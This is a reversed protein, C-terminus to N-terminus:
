VVINLIRGPVYITKKPTKGAVHTQVSRDALAQALVEDESLGPTVEIEARVKGNVQVALMVTARALKAADYLPWAERALLETHGLSEWLEEALHPAFPYLLKLFGEFYGKGVAPDKELVNMFIMLESVATNFRMTEIDDSVKKVTRHFDGERAANADGNVKSRLKWARELFRRPGIIGETNWVVAQDFPGMFMEYLRLTDAGYTAVIEDPGVVNGKSKSMKEGGEALILGHSTRKAYPEPTPVAGIDYLFKHWFRSYLLHLTTHEMGGNYWDVPTWHKLKKKDAFAKDNKPDIYRLFYWSSGAWQPMTDTERRAPGGCKPCKTNVWSEVKALPSEGTDTPTYAGVEPLTLPLEAEPVPVWGDKECHVLPIPEGWYRQRSFVWDRLKYKKVMTGGVAETIKKKAEKSPLGSFKGSATLIGEGTYCKGRVFKDFIYHHLPDVIEREAVEPTVWEITFNGKESEDHSTEDKAEDILDFYLGIAEIVRAKKKAHAYYHHHVTESVGALKVNRYGTEEKIERLAAAEPTEGDELGGGILLRGGLNSGWDLTLIEGKKNRVLAVISKRKEEGERPAGTVPEIVTQIPLGYKGAFEFDREDHAPVAMIAGTGYEALVYDAVYMPIEEGNAPNIAVVGKLKVGTKEKGEATREIETKKKAAEAYRRVEEKNALADHHEDIALKVWLHDPSLVLYTAGFLTDPRTTFVSIAAREGNPGRNDNAKPDHIFKLPFSLEAGESRGIWNRQQIKIKELYDVTDLDDHLRDAYKTIALMWQEKERKETRGDCRECMGDVVEENALGIKCEVCWNISTKKKYALGHKWLQLFIWQTWKYYAPDTTDIERDWDFSLGLSKLQRRFTDTNQKTVVAPPTKTKIAFNETPLGFADWGIPYLVNYGEMRRKRSVIDLATYSRVHGTHLGDGSPYPFEVLLYYKKRKDADLAKFVG